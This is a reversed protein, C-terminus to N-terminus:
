ESLRKVTEMVYDGFASCTAGDERGTINLKKEEFMCIDLARELLAAEKETLRLGM